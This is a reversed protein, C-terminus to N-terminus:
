IKKGVTLKRVLPGNLNPNVSIKGYKASAYKKRVAQHKSKENKIILYALDAVVTRIDYYTYSTYHALTPTWLKQLDMTENLIGMSLCCASAAQLSPRVHSMSDELLALELLYKGLNHHDINADAIKNYRRLFQISLPRGLSFDLRKLIEREMQLIQRKSFTNDCTYEFDELDPIYVEEYKCAILLASTGVLQLTNKGVKKNEQLYRDIIGICLHLTDLTLKFNMHVEVLWNVLIARMKPTSEHEELFNKNIALKKEMDRLYEFIDLLYEPVMQPEDQLNEDPNLVPSKRNSVRSIVSLKKSDRAIATPESNNKMTQETINKLISEQRQFVAKANPVNNTNTTTSKKIPMTAQMRKQINEPPGMQGNQKLKDNTQQVAQLRNGVEGLAARKVGENPQISNSKITLRSSVNEQNVNIARRFAM